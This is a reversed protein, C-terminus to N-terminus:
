FVVLADLDYGNFRLIDRAAALRDSSIAGGRNLIFGFQGSPTGVVMTRMDADAWLVWLPAAVGPLTFRAAPEVRGQGEVRQGSLCLAYSVHLGDAGPSYTLSGSKCGTAATAFGAVQTWPGASATAAPDFAVISYIQRSTDRFTVTQPAQRPVCASVLIALVVLRILQPM